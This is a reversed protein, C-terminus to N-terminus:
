LNTHLPKNEITKRSLINETFILDKQTDIWYLTEDPGMTYGYLPEEANILAPLVNHGFDSPVGGPIYQVVSTECLYMGANVWHSLVQDKGPKEIFATIKGKNNLQVVGSASVDQRWFLVMTLASNNTLHFYLLAQLNCKILNDAYLVLFREHSFHRRAMWVGGATGMLEPEYSYHIRVGFSSGDQFYDIVTQPYHHLNIVVEDIGESRLFELNWQLVPKGAVPVMCKPRDDTLPRLRSGLGASLLMAKM